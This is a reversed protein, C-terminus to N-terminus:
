RETGLAKSLVEEAWTQDEDSLSPEVPRRYDLLYRYGGREYVTTFVSQLDLKVLEKDDKLPIPITPMKQTLRWHIAIAKPRWEWRSILALYDAKPMNRMPMREGGRLLDLEVLHVRSYFVEHRKALYEHWGVSGKRKNTPSLLEIVTVLEGTERVRIEVFYERFEMSPLEALEVEVVGQALEPDIEIEVATRMAVAAGGAPSTGVIAVDPEILRIPKIALQPPEPFWEVHVREGVVAIYRPVIQAMLAEQMAVIFTAHFHEWRQGEIFPDMGLFPSPM